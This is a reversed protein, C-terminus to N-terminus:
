RRPLTQTIFRPYRRNEDFVLICSPAPASSEAGVFRVRGPIFRIEAAKMAWRHWWKTDTRCFVFCVVTCGKTSEKYAKEIWEGIDRGYPPNLWISPRDTRYKEPLLGGEGSAREFWDTTLSDERPTIFTSVKTNNPLACADLKFHFEENLVDFLAKPTEWDNKKSSFLQDETWSSM